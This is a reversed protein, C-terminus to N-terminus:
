RAVAPTPETNANLLVDNLTRAAPSLAHDARHIVLAQVTPLAEAIRRFHVGQQGLAQATHPLLSIGYDGAVLPLGTQLTPVEQVTVPKSLAAKAWVQDMAEPLGSLEPWRPPLLWTEASLDTLRVPDPLGKLREPLAVRVEIEAACDITLQAGYDQRFRQPNTTLLIGLEASGDLVERLTATPELDKLSVSVEPARLRMRCLIEPMYLWNFEPASCLTVSGASGSAIEALRTTATTLLSDISTAVGYLYDGAETTRVGGRGRSLLKVNLDKELKRVTLSLSPQTLQLAEAAQTFSGHDVVSRFHHLQRSDM